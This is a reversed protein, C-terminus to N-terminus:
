GTLRIVMKMREDAASMERIARRMVQVYDEAEALREACVPCAAIHQRLREALGADLHGLVLEEFCQLDEVEHNPV